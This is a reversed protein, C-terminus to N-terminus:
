EADRTEENPPLIRWHRGDGSTSSRSHGVYELRPEFWRHMAKCWVSVGDLGSRMDRGTEPGYETIDTRDSESGIEGTSGDVEVYLEHTTEARFEITNIEGGCEPCKPQAAQIAEIVHEPLGPHDRGQREYRCNSCDHDSDLKPLKNVPTGYSTWGHGCSPVIEVGRSIGSPNISVSVITPSPPVPEPDKHTSGADSETLNCYVCLDNRGNQGRVHPTKRWYARGLELGYDIFPVTVATDM